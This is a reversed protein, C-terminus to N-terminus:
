QQEKAKTSSQTTDTKRHLPTNKERKRFGQHCSSVTSGRDAVTSGRGIVTSGSIPARYYAGLRSSSVGSPATSGVRRPVEARATSGRHPM